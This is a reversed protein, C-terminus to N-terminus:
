KKGYGLGVMVRGTTTHHITSLKGNNNEQWQWTFADAAESDEFAFSTIRILAYSTEKTESDVHRQFLGGAPIEVGKYVIPGLNIATNGGMHKHLMKLGGITHVTYAGERVSENFYFEADKCGSDKVHIDGDFVPIDSEMVVRTPDLGQKLLSIFIRAPENQLEDLSITRLIDFAEDSTNEFFSGAGREPKGILKALERTLESYNNGYRSDYSGGPRSKGEFIERLKDTMELDYREFIHVLSSATDTDLFTHTCIEGNHSKELLVRDKDVEVGLHFSAETPDVRTGDKFYMGHYVGSNRDVERLIKLLNGDKDFYVGEGSRTPNIGDGELHIPLEYLKDVFEYEAKVGNIQRPYIGMFCFVVDQQESGLEYMEDTRSDLVGNKLENAIKTFAESAKQRNKIIRDRMRGGPDSYRLALSGSSSKEWIVRPGKGITFNDGELVSLGTQGAAENVMNLQIRSSPSDINGFMIDGRWEESSIVTTPNPLVKEIQRIASSLTKQMIWDEREHKLTESLHTSPDNNHEPTITDQTHMTKKNQLYSSYKIM